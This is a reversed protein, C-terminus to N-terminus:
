TQSPVRSPVSYLIHILSAYRPVDCPITLEDNRYWDM